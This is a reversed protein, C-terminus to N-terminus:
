SVRRWMYVVKYPPMNNVATSGQYDTYGSVATFMNTSESRSWHTSEVSYTGTINDPNTARFQPHWTWTNGSGISYILQGGIYAVLNSATHRHYMSLTSSGGTANTGENISTNAGRLFRDELAVWSGGFLSAPSTSNTSMYVAGIPYFLKTFKLKLDDSYPYYANVEDILKEEQIIM